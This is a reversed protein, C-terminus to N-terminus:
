RWKGFIMTCVFKRRVVSIRSTGSFFAPDYDYYPRKKRREGLMIYIRKAKASETSACLAIGVDRNRSM